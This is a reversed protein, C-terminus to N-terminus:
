RIEGIIFELDFPKAFLEDLDKYGIGKNQITMGCYHKREENPKEIDRLTIAIFPYQVVLQLINCM